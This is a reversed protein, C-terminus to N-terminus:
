KAKQQKRQKKGEKARNTLSVSHTHTHTNQARPDGDSATSELRDDWAQPLRAQDCEAKYTSKLICREARASFHIHTHTHTQMHTHTHTHTQTLFLSIHFFFIILINPATSLASHLLDFFVIQSNRQTEGQIDAFHLYMQTHTHTHTHTHTRTHTHTGEPAAPPRHHLLLLLLTGYCYAQIM